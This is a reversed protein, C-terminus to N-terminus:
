QGLQARIMTAADSVVAALRQVGDPGPVPRGQTLLLLQRHDVDGFRLLDALGDLLYLLAEGDSDALVLIRDPAAPRGIM